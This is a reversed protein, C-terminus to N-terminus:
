KPVSLKLFKKGRMNTKIECGAYVTMTMGNEGTRENKIEPPGWRYEWIKIYHKRYNKFEPRGRKGWVYKSFRDYLPPALPWLRKTVRSFDRERYLFPRAMRAKRKADGEEFWQSFIKEMIDQTIGPLYPTFFEALDGFSTSGIFIDLASNGVLGKLTETATGCVRAALYAAKRYRLIDKMSYPTEV